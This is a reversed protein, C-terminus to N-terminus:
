LLEINNALCWHLQDHELKGNLVYRSDTTHKQLIVSMSQKYTLQQCNLYARASKVDKIKQM